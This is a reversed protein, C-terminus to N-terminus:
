RRIPPHRSLGSPTVGVSIRIAYGVSAAVHAPQGAGGFTGVVATEKGSTPLLHADAPLALHATLPKGKGPAKNAESGSTPLFGDNAVDVWVRYVGDAVREAGSAIIRLHPATGMAAVAFPVAGAIVDHLLPGPPNM